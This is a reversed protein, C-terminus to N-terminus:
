ARLAQLDRLMSDLGVVDAYKSNMDILNAEHQAASRDTVAERVVFPPYGYQMADVTSARVCGSTTAGAVVLMDCGEAALLACLPTGFFASAQTKHIIVHQAPDYALRPDLECAASGRRLTVLSRCKQTWVGTDRFNGDYGVVTFFVPGIGRMAEILHNTAQVAGTCDSALPSVETETFGRQLDIVLLAPRRGRNLTGNFGSRINDQDDM